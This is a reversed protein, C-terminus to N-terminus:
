KSMPMIVHVFDDRNEPKLVGPNEPGNSEFVVREESIVRLVDILYRINFSIDLSEGEATADLMGESDGREASKGVILVEAPEGPNMAPKVSLNASNANDRAFIEARQCVLLLDNTYMVTSTVFSRPIISAFDPFRGELLQSSVLVNPAFFTISNRQTPLSIGVEQDDEVIRAVESMTQAPVVMDQREEFKEEIEATRVALRYGDAAAMTLTQGDLQFYVGTLIPRNQERAAAFATQTIMERLTEGQVQLDANENHNIPPFEDADIGRINSTQVGCRLHVTHTAADLRLDVREPSLSNVLESFTRAPLTISGTQEVKAGIWVSISLELNTASIKLRSDETELLVNALVPLPPNSDVAKSVINLSKALNEQLVSVIM